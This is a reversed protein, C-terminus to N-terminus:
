KMGMYVMVVVTGYEVGEAEERRYVEEAIVVGVVIGIIGIEMIAAVGISVAVDVLGKGRKAKAEGVVVSGLLPPSVHTEYGCEPELSGKGFPSASHAVM